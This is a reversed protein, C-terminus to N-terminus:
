SHSCPMIYQECCKIEIRVLGAVLGGSYCTNGYKRNMKKQRRQEAGMDDIDDHHATYQHLWIESRYRAVGSVQHSYEGTIIIIECHCLDICCFININHIRVHIQPRHRLWSKSSNCEFLKIHFGFSSNQHRVIQGNEEQRIITAFNFNIRSFTWFYFEQFIEIDFNACEAFPASIYIIQIQNVFRARLLELGIGCGRYDDAVTLGCCSLYESVNYHEYVDFDTYLCALAEYTLRENEAKPQFTPIYM